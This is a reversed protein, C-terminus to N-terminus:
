KQARYDRFTRLAIHPWNAPHNPWFLELRYRPRVDEMWEAKYADSGTGYDVLDVRDVDIVHQFM